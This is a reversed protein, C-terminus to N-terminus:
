EWVRAVSDVLVDDDTHSGIAFLVPLIGSAFIEIARDSGIGPMSGFRTFGCFHAVPDDSSVSAQIASLLGGEPAVNHALAAAAHLRPLPHNAPRM